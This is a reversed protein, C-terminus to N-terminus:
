SAPRRSRVARRLCRACGRLCSVRRGRLQVQTEKRWRPRLSICEGDQFRWKSSSPLAFTEASRWLQARAKLRMNDRPSQRPTKGPRSVGRCCRATFELDVDGDVHFTDGACDGGVLQHRRTELVVPEPAEHGVFGEGCHLGRFVGAGRFDHHAIRMAVSLVQQDFQEGRVDLDHTRPRAVPAHHRTQVRAEVRYQENAIVRGGRLGCPTRACVNELACRALTERFPLATVSPSNLAAYAPANPTGTIKAEPSSM